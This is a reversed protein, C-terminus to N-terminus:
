SVNKDIDPDGIGTFTQGEGTNKEHADVIIRALIRLAEAFPMRENNNNLPNETKDQKPDTM